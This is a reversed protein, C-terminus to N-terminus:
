SGLVKVDMLAFWPAGQDRFGALRVRHQLGLQAIKAEIVVRYPGEGVLLLFARAGEKLLEHFAELLDLHGKWSRLVAVSGFIFTAAPFQYLWRTPRNDRVRTSLHRTRVLLPRNRLSRWALTGVWSDLSSHTNLIDVPARNLLRRLGVWAGLDMFGGFVMPTVPFNQLLVRQSLEGRPDCVFATRHGRRRMALAEVLIRREQGGWGLSAETQLIALSKKSPKVPM